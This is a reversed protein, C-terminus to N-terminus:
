KFSYKKLEHAYGMCLVILGLGKNHLIINNLKCFVREGKKIMSKEKTSEQTLTPFHLEEKTSPWM